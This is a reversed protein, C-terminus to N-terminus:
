DLVIAKDLHLEVLDHSELLLALSKAQTEFLQKMDRLKLNGVRVLVLKPPKRNLLFSNFFDTDKTIVVAGKQAAEESLWGDSTSNGLPFDTTHLATHGLARFYKCLSKPLHADIIFIM